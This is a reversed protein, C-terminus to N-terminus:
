ALGKVFDALQALNHCEVMPVIAAYRSAASDGTDWVATREPNLWHAHKSRAALRELTELGLPGYNSRADGLVLLSSRRGIVDPYREEFLEFARGYDTRGLLWTVKAEEGLTSISDLIDSGPAFFRTVEDLDDVFAFARVRSFQERLAYILLLTFHAFSSVSESLDCLVVLDAKAPHRPRHTTDIPVGGSSLSNRMTRRMDLAGRRGRRHDHALRAALRRALPQVERRLAALESKTASLFAVRDISPRVGTRAAAEFGTQEAIRRRVDAEVLRTFRGLRADIAIRARQEAIGGRDDGLLQELLNALLTQPALRDLVTTRSWSPRGPAFGPLAGFGAVADRAVGHGLQEDGSRLYEALEARLRVRLQDDVAWPPPSDRVPEPTRGGNADDASSGLVMPYYLDFVNDFITRHAQRKVLTAAYVARLQERDALGVARVASAADLGEAISVTVGAARLASVFEVHHEFLSM